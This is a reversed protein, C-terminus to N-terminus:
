NMLLILNFQTKPLVKPITIQKFRNTWVKGNGLNSEKNVKTLKRKKEYLNSQGKKNKICMVGFIELLGWSGDERTFNLYTYFNRSVSCPRLTAIELKNRALM